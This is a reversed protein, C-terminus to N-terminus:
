PSTSYLDVYVKSVKTKSSSLARLNLFHSDRNNEPVVDTGVFLKESTVELPRHAVSCFNVRFIALMYVCHMNTTYLNHSLTKAKIEQIRVLM